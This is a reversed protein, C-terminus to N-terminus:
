DLNRYKKIYENIVEDIKVKLDKLNKDNITYTYVTATYKKNDDYQYIKVGKYNKIYTFEKKM